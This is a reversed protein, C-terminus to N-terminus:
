KYSQTLRLNSGSLVKKGAVPRKLRGKEWKNFARQLRKLKFPNCIDSHRNEAAKVESM